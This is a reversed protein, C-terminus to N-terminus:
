SITSLISYLWSDNRLDEAQLGDSPHLGPSKGQQAAKQELGRRGALRRGALRFLYM